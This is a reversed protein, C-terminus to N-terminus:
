YNTPNQAVEGRRPAARASQSPRNRVVGPMTSQPNHLYWTPYSHPLPVGYRGLSCHSPCPLETPWLDASAPPHLQFRTSCQRLADGPGQRLGGNVRRPISQPHNRHTGFARPWSCKPCKKESCTKYSSLGHGDKMALCARKESRPRRWIPASRLTEITMGLPPGATARSGYNPHTKEKTEHTKRGDGITGPARRYNGTKDDITGV